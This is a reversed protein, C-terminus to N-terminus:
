DKHFFRETGVIAISIRKWVGAAHTDKRVRLVLEHEAAPDVTQPLMISFPKDWMIGAPVKQEGIKDGDLFVDVVGDVAGFLLAVKGQALAEKM